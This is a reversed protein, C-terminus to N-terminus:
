LAEQFAHADDAIQLLEPLAHLYRQDMPQGVLYGRCLDVLVPSLLYGHRFLGNLSIVRGDVRMQPENHLYAPRLGSQIQLIEAEAFGSHVSFCSSLLELASRVTPQRRDQTEIQTAGIVFHHDPKPAIYIPYRPHMLRVPRQLTVQPAHVRAVEGRVGRLDQQADEAAGLGRCDVIWDYGNRFEDNVRLGQECLRVHSRTQWDIHPHVQLVEGLVALLQRNDLQGEDPLFLAHAFRQNIEPELSAIEVRDIRRYNDGKLNRQLTELSARDQEFALLLSGNRQFFVKKPLSQLIKPWLELAIEGLRMIGTGSEASEALPALMAAALYAASQEGQGDDQDFLDIQMEDKLSFALLRGLLGAGLIAIKPKTGTQVSRDVRGSM